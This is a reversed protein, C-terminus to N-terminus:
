GHINMRVKVKQGDLLAYRTISVVTKASITANGAEYLRNGSADEVYFNFEYKLGLASTINGYSMNTFNSLKKSSLVNPSSVLGISSINSTNTEWDYPVGSTKLMLDSISIIEYEMRNKKAHESATINSNFWFTICFVTLIIFVLSAIIM